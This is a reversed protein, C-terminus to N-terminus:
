SATGFMRLEPNSMSDFEEDSNWNRHKSITLLLHNIPDPEWKM